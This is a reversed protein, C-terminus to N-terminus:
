VFPLERESESYEESQQQEADPRGECRCLEGRSCCEAGYGIRSPSRNGSGGNNQRLALGVKRALCLGGIQTFVSGLKKRHSGVGDFHGRITKLLQVLLANSQGHRLLRRQVEFKRHAGRVSDNLYGGFHREDVGAVGYEAAQDVVVLDFIEREDVAIGVLEQAECGADLVDRVLVADADRGLV